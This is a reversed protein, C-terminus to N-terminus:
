SGAARALLAALNVPGEDLYRAANRALNPCDRLISLLMRNCRYACILGRISRRVAEVHEVGAAVLRACLHHSHDVAGVVGERSAKDYRNRLPSDCIACRGRQGHYLGVWEEPTLAAYATGSVIRGSKSVRLAKSRERQRSAQGGPTARYRAKRAAPKSAPM